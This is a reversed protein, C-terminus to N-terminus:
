FKRRSETPTADGQARFCTGCVANSGTANHVGASDIAGCTLPHGSDDTGTGARRCV